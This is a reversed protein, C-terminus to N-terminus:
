DVIRGCVRGGAECCKSACDCWRCQKMCLVCTGLKIELLRLVRTCGYLCSTGRSEVSCRRKLYRCLWRFRSDGCAGDCGSRRRAGGSM